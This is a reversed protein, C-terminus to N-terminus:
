ANSCWDSEFSTVFSTAFLLLSAMFYDLELDSRVKMLGNQFWWLAEQQIYCMKSNAHFPEMRLRHCLGGRMGDVIIGVQEAIQM